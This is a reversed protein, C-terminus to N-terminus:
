NAANGDGELLDKIFTQDDIPRDFDLLYEQLKDLVTQSGRKKVAEDLSTFLVIDAEM